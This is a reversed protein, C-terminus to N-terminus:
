PLVFATVVDASDDDRGVSRLHGSSGSAVVVYQKGDRGLYTIPTAQGPADLKTTWLEKGTRTDFAHFHSDNTAAIFVLQSATAIPGGVNPAGTNKIGRSELEEYSGLPVRWVVDGTDANVASLEGWPPQNCPYHDQDVFRTYGGRAVYPMGRSGDVPAGEPAKEMRGTSGLNSTNVFILHLSPDFAVGGWNGGGMTSPFLTSGNRLFPTYPGENPFKTLLEACFKASEPTLTSLESVTVSNRALPPPKLPFPQTPWSKEGPVDSVPVPREEAGFIPTGTSRDLIFLLGMKTIEAIAPVPKGNRMTTILAPAAAVDYDFLDHHVMQYAWRFKGTAADVAVVSDSYLNKGPRDAGYFSDAPNGIPLFLLGNQPDVTMFGWLSPGAREKEAEPGGWTSERPRNGAQLTDFTWILKGTKISFARADGRPGHSPGEPGDPGVIVLDRYIAPPSTVGYRAQPYRDKRGVGLDVIGNQGFTKIPEGTKADLAILQAKDTGFLIRPGTEEDGPWYAVGRGVSGKGGRADYSWFIRGTEPELAVIHQSPTMLYMTNGVVLPTVEFMAGTDGTKYKWAPVLRAVNEANIQTLPSYRMAGPDHGFTQWDTQGPVQSKIGSETVVLNRTAVDTSEAKLKPTKGFHATLYDVVAIVDAPSGPAGRRVMNGVVDQWEERTRQTATVLALGHCAACMREVNTKGPGNPLAPDEALLSTGILFLTAGLGLPKFKSHRSSKSIFVTLLIDKM